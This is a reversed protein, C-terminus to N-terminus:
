FSLFTVRTLNKMYTKVMNCLECVISSFIIFIKDNVKTDTTSKKLLGINLEKEYMRTGCGTQDPKVADTSSSVKRVGQEWARVEAGERM